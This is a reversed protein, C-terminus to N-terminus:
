GVQGLLRRFAEANIAAQGRHCNNFFAYITDAGAEISSWHRILERMEPESYSYDYREVAGAYWKDADRSHLRLYGTPSTLAPAPRYLSRIPPVDPIVLAVDRERLGEVTAPHDWSAHRFEVALPVSRFDEVAAALYKRAAVTRHFSQPFQLLVGALKGAERLPTLADLFEAAVSRDGEHTVQRNGKIWLRFDPPSKRALAAVMQGAPMRYFTSNVEVTPFRQVYLSFMDQRTTGSPYYPGVWDTFSYGSTGVIYKTKEAM